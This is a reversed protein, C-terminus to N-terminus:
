LRVSALKRAASRLTATQPDPKPRPVAVHRAHSGDLGLVVFESLLMPSSEEEFHDARGFVLSRSCPLRNHSGGRLAAPCPRLLGITFPALVSKPASDALQLGKRSGKGRTSFPRAPSCPRGAPRAITLTKSASTPPSSTAVGDRTNRVTVALRIHPLFSLGEAASWWTQVAGKFRRARISSPLRM